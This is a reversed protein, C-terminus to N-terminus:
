LLIQSLMLTFFTDFLIFLEFAIRFHTRFM